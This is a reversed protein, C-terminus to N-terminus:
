DLNLERQSFQPRRELEVDSWDMGEFLDLGTKPKALSQYLEYSMLVADPKGHHTVVIPAEKVQDLVKSLKNKVDRVGM